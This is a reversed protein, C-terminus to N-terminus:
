LPVPAVEIADPMISRVMIRLLAPSVSQWPVMENNTYPEGSIPEVVVYVPIAGDDFRAIAYRAAPQTLTGMMGEGESLHWRADARWNYCGSAACVRFSLAM